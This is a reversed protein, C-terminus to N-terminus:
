GRIWQGSGDVTKGFFAGIMDAAVMKGFRRPRIICLHRQADLELGSIIEDLLASRDAFFRTGAINQFGEYPTRSNIFIGM